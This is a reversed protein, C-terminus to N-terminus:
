GRIKHYIPSLIKFVPQLFLRPVRKITYNLDFFRSVFHPTINENIPFSYCEKIESSSTNGWHLDSLVDSNAETLEQCLVLNNERVAQQYLDFISITFAKNVNDVVDTHIITPTYSIDKIIAQQSKEDRDITINLIISTYCKKTSWYPYGNAVFNGLSYIVYGTRAKGDESKIKRCEMPQLVHPHGGVIIDAGANFWKNVMDRAFKLPYQTFEVGMHPILVVIDAGLKKTTQIDTIIKASILGADHMFDDKMLIKQLFQPPWHTHISPFTNWYDEYKQMEPRSLLNIHNAEIDKAYSPHVNNNIGFTYTLFAIRIGNIEKIFPTNKEEPNKYTGIHDVGASDLAEITRKLGELGRDMCHNNATTLLNFGSDVVARLYADPANFGGKFKGDTGVYQLDEGAVPTELNGIVYDSDNLYKRINAFVPTFDYTNKEKEYAKRM